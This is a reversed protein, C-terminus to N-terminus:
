CRDNWLLDDVLRGGCFQPWILLIGVTQWWIIYEVGNEFGIGFVIAAELLQQCHAELPLHYLLDHPQYIDAFVFASLGRRADLDGGAGEAAVAAQGNHVLVSLASSFVPHLSFIRSPAPLNPIGPGKM